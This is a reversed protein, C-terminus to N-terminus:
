VKLLTHGIIIGAYLLAGLLFSALGSKKLTTPLEDKIAHYLIVGSVFALLIYAEAINEPFLISATWGIIPAAGIIYRGVKTQLTKYHEIITNSSIFLHMSVGTAFLIAATTGTELEFTLVFSLVFNLIATTVLYIIFVHKSAETFDIHLGTKQQKQKRSTITIHELTFFTLFGTLVILYIADEYLNILPQTIGIQKLYQASQQLTPLLHLFVFAATIGGFLSLIKRKHKNTHNTIKHAYLNIAAFTIAGILSYFVIETSPM